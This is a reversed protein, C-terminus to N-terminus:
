YNIEIGKDILTKLYEEEEENFRFISNIVIRQLNPLIEVGRLSTVDFSSCEGDWNCFIYRYIEGVDLFIHTVKELLETTLPYNYLYERCEPIESYGDVTEEENDDGDFEIFRGLVFSALEDYDGLYIHGDALLADLISLKLNPCKFLPPGVTVPAPYIDRITNDYKSAYVALPNTITIGSLCGNCFSASLHNGSALGLSYSTQDSNPVLDSLIFLVEGLPMGLKIGEIERKQPFRGFFCVEGIIGNRDVRLSCGFKIFYLRGEDKNKLAQWHSLLVDKADIYATGPRLKSFAVFDIKKTPNNM